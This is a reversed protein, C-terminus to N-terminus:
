YSTRITEVSGEDNDSVLGVVEALILAGFFEDSLPCLLPADTVLEHDSGLYRQFKISILEIRVRIYELVRGIILAAVVVDALLHCVDTVVDLRHM